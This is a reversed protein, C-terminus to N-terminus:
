TIGFVLHATAGAETVEGVEGDDPVEEQVLLYTQFQGSKYVLLVKSKKQEKDENEREKQRERQNNEKKQEKKKGSEIELGKESKFM